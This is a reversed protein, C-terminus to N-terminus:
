LGRCVGSKDCIQLRDGDPRISWGNDFTIYDYRDVNVPGDYGEGARPRSLYLGSWRSVRGDATIVGGAQMSRIETTTGRANMEVNGLSGFALRTNGRDHSLITYGELAQPGGQEVALPSSIRSQLGVATESGCVALLLTQVYLGVMSTAIYHRM